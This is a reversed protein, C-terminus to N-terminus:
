RPHTSMMWDAVHGFLVFLYPFFLNAAKAQAPVDMKEHGQVNTSRTRLGRRCAGSHLGQPEWQRHQRQGHMVCPLKWLRLSHVMKELGGDVDGEQKSIKETESYIKCVDTVYCGSTRCDLVSSTM